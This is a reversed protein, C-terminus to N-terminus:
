PVFVIMKLRSDALGRVINDLIYEKPRDEMKDKLYDDKTSINWVDWM